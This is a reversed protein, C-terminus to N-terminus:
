SGMILAAGAHFMVQQNIRNSAESFVAATAEGLARRTDHTGKNDSKELQERAEAELQM